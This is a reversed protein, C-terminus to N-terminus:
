WNKKTELIVSINILKVQVRFWKTHKKSKNSNINIIIIIIILKRKRIWNKVVFKKIKNKLTTTLPAQKPREIITFIVRDKVM